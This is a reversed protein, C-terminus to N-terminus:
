VLEYYDKYSRIIKKRELNSIATWWGVLSTYKHKISKKQIEYLTMPEGEKTLISIIETEVSKLVETITM